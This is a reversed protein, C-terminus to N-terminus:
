NARSYLVQTPLTCAPDEHTIPTRKTGLAACALLAVNCIASLALPLGLVTSRVPVPALTGCGAAGGRIKGRAGEGEGRGFNTLLASKWCIVTPLM